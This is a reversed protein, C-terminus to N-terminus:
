AGSRRYMFMTGDARGTEIPDLAFGPIEGAEEFGVGAYLRHAASGTTTDLTVLTKGEAEAAALLALMLRRGLGSRRAGPDVLLKTVEARHPQNPQWPRALMVCGLIRGGEEAAFLTQAGSRLAPLPDARWWAEAEAPSFPLIFNVSAGAHVCANLLAALAPLAAEAEAATLIRIEAM